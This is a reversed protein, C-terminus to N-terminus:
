EESFYAFVSGGALEISSWRGYLWQGVPFSDGSVIAQANTGNGAATATVSTGPYFTGVNNSPVLATFTAATVVNIATVVKGTPPTFSDTTDLWAGGTQGSDIQSTNQAM